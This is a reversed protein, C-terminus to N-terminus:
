LKPNRKLYSSFALSNWVLRYYSEDALSRFKWMRYFRRVIRCIKQIINEHFIAPQEGLIDALVAESIYGGGMLGNVNITMKLKDVCLATLVRAFQLMRCEEMLPIIRDWNVNNAETKLFFAWDLLHRVRIGEKIFHHQAHKIMFMANFDASPSLLRTEGIPHIDEKILQQLLLETKIGLQTNDFNTLFQHNEITLGRYYLHSHKYGSEKMIGGIEAVIMDGEEKKDMLFCDLDESERLEPNPYYSAFVPGKLIITQIGRKSLKDAFDISIRGKRKIQEEISIANSLWRLTTNKPPAINHPMDKIAEFVIAVVGQKKAILYIHEWYNCPANSFLGWNIRSENLICSLIYFFLDIVNDM